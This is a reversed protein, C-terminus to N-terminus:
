WKMMEPDGTLQDLRRQIIEVQQQRRRELLARIEKLEQEIRKAERERMQMRLEFQEELLESLRRRMEERQEGDPTDRIRKGLEETKRELEYDRKRLEYAEPDVEKLRTMEDLLERMHRMENEAAEPNEQGWDMIREIAGPFEEEIKRRMDPEVPLFPRRGQFPGRMMDMRERSEELRQRAEPPMRELLRQRAEPSANELSRAMDRFRAGEEDDAGAGARFRPGLGDGWGEDEQREGRPGGPRERGQRANERAPGGGEARWAGPQETGTDERARPAKEETEEAGTPAGALLLWVATAWGIRSMWANARM